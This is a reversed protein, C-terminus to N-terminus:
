NELDARHQLPSKPKAKPTASASVRHPAGTAGHAVAPAHSAAVPAHPHKEAIRHPTRTEERAAKIRPHAVHAPPPKPTVRPVVPPISAVPPPPAAPSTPAPEEEPEAEEPEPEKRVVVLTVPVPGLYPVPEAAADRETDKAPQDTEVVPEAAAPAAPAPAAPPPAAAAAPEDHLPPRDASKPMERPRPSLSILASSKSVASAVSRDAAIQLRDETQSGFLTVGASMMLPPLVLVGATAGLQVLISGRQRGELGNRSMFGWWIRVTGVWEIESM